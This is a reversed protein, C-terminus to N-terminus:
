RLYRKKLESVSLGIIENMPSNKIQRMIIKRQKPDLVEKLIIKRLRGIKKVYKIHDETLVQKIKEKFVRAFMPLTGSTSIAITVPGKKVMSPVIFDCFDPDDVVNAIIGMEEADKKIQRNVEKKDTAAFVIFAGELDGKKYDRKIIELKGKEELTILRKTISPAIVRVNAGCKILIVAKREAVQGGGIILCLRKKLNLFIPYYSRDSSKSTQLNTKINKM